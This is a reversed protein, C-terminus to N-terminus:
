QKWCLFLAAFSFDSFFFFFSGGIDFIFFQDSWDLLGKGGGGWRRCAVVGGSRCPLLGHHHIIVARGKASRM